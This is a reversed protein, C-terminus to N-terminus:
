IELDSYKKRKDKKRKTYDHCDVEITVSKPYPCSCNAEGLREPQRTEKTSSIISSDHCDLGFACCSNCQNLVPKEELNRMRMMAEHMKLTFVVGPYKLHESEASYSFWSSGWEYWSLSTPYEPHKPMPIEPLQGRHWFGLNWSTPATLLQHDLSIADIGNCPRSRASYILNIGPIIGTLVFGGILPTRVHLMSNMIPEGNNPMLGKLRLMDDSEFDESATLRPLRGTASSRMGIVAWARGTDITRSVTLDLGYAVIITKDNASQLLHLHSEQHWLQFNLSELHYKIGVLLCLASGKEMFQYCKKVIPQEPLKESVYMIRSLRLLMDHIDEKPLLFPNDSFHLLQERVSETLKSDTLFAKQEDNFDMRMLVDNFDKLSSLALCSVAGEFYETSSHKEKL